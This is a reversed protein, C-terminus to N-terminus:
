SRTRERVISTEIEALAIRSRLAEVDQRDRYLEARLTWLQRMALFVALALTVIGAAVAAMGLASELETMPVRLPERM